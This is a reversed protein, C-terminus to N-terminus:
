CGGALLQGSLRAPHPALGTGLIVARPRVPYRVPLEGLFEKYILHGCPACPACPYARTYALSTRTLARTLPTTRAYACPLGHPGHPGHARNNELPNKRPYGTRYGTRGRATLPSIPTKPHRFPYGPSLRAAARASRAPTLAAILTLRPSTTM